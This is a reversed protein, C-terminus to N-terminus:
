SPENIGLGIRVGGGGDRCGSSVDVKAAACLPISFLFFTNWTATEAVDFIDDM